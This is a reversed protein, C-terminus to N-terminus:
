KTTVRLGDEPWMRVGLIAVTGKTARVVKGIKVEDAMKYENPLINFDVVEFKWNQTSSAIGSDSRIIKPQEPPMDVPTLDVTHEGTLAEERRALALKEREIAEAEARKRDQEQRFATVKARTIKDAALVPAMLKEYTENIAKKAAEHPKLYQRRREEMAKKLRAIISLDDTATKTDELSTIVRSEAYSQLKRGEEYYSIVEVDTGPAGTFSLAMLDDIM